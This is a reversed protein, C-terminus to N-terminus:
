LAATQTTYAGNRMYPIARASEAAVV